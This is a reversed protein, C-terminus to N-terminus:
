ANKVREFMEIWVDDREAPKFPIMGELVGPEIQLSPAEIADMAAQSTNMINRTESLAAGIEPDLYENLV